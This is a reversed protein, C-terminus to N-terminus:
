SACSGTSVASTSTSSLASSIQAQTLAYGTESDTTSRAFVLGVVKGSENVLPGGSDGARIEARLSYIQRTVASTGYIDLGIAQVISRVRGPTITLAGGGPYGIAYVADGSSAAESQVTLAPANLNPVRLIAVDTEPDFYVVTAALAQSSGPAAVTVTSAGAVVHANTVVDNASLPWASGTAEVDCSTKEAVVKVVSNSATVVAAPTSAPPAAVAVINAEAGSFVEPLGAAAFADDVSSFVQSSSLPIVKNLTSVVTSSQALQSLGLAGSSTAIGAVLWVILAWAAVGFLGGAAADVMRGGPIHVVIRRVFVTLLGVLWACLGGIAVVVVVVAVAQPVTSPLVGNLATLVTPSWLIGLWVGGVSGIATGASSIVGRRVGSILAIM